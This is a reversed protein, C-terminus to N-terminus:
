SQNYRRGTLGSAAPELGTLEALYYFPKLRNQNLGKKIDKTKDQEEDWGVLGKKWRLINGHHEEM